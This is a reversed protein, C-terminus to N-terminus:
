PMPLREYVFESGSVRSSRQTSPLFQVSTNYPNFLDPVRITPDSTNQVDMLFVHARNIADGDWQIQNERFGASNIGGFGLISNAQRWLDQNDYYPGRNGFFVENMAKPINSSQTRPAQQASAQSAVAVTAAIAVASLCPFIRVAMGNM